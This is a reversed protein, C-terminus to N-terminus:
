LIQKSQKGPDRYERSCAWPINLWVACSLTWNVFRETVARVLLGTIPVPLTM